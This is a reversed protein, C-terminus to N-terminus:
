VKTAWRTWLGGDVKYQSNISKVGGSNNTFAKLETFIYQYNSIDLNSSYWYATDNNNTTVDVAEFRENKVYFWDSNDWLSNNVIINWNVNTM